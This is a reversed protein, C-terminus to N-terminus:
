LRRLRLARIRPGRERELFRHAGLTAPGVDREADSQDRSQGGPLDLDDLARRNRPRTGGTDINGAPSERKRTFMSRSGDPNDTLTTSHPLSFAGGIKNYGPHAHETYTKRM